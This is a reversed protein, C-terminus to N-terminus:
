RLVDHLAKPLVAHKVDCRAILHRQLERPVGERVVVV